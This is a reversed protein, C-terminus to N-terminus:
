VLDQHRGPSEEVGVKRGYNARDDDAGDGTGM